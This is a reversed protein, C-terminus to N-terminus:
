QDITYEMGHLYATGAPFYFYTGAIFWQPYPWGQVTTGNPGGFVSAFVYITGRDTAGCSTGFSLTGGTTVEVGDLRFVTGSPVVYSCSGSVSSNIVSSVQLKDRSAKASSGSSNSSNGLSIVVKGVGGAGGSADRGGGGGGAGFGGATGLTSVASGGFGGTGGDSPASGGNGGISSYGYGASGALNKQGGSGSGATAACSCTSPNTGGGGGTATLGLTGVSSNGGTAGAANNSTGATGGTGVTITYTAGATLSYSGESYGGSAGGNGYQNSYWGSSGGGGAGWVQVFYTGTCPTTFTFTGAANYTTVAATAIASSKLVSEIKWVKNSPVTQATTISLNQSYDLASGNVSFEIVSVSFVNSSVALIQGTKLWAPLKLGASSNEDAVIDNGDIKILPFCQAKASQVIALQLLVAGIILLRSKFLIKM